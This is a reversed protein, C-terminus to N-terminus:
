AVNGFERRRFSQWNEDLIQASIGEGFRLELNNCCKKLIIIFYKINIETTKNLKKSSDICSFAKM